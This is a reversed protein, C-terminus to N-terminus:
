AERERLGVHICVIGGTLARWRVTGFGAARMAEAFAGPQPFAAVSAPLYTYAEPVGSIWGGVRPLLVTSYFRYLGAFFRGRPQFFELVVARGGPRLVRRMEALAAGRDTVNRIGFAVLVADFTGTRFPLAEAAGAALLVPPERGAAKRRGLLLM